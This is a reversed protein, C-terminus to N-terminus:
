LIVEIEVQNTIGDGLIEDLRKDDVGSLVSSCSQIFSNTQSGPRTESTPTPIGSSGLSSFSSVGLEDEFTVHSSFIGCSNFFKCVNFYCRNSSRRTAMISESPTSKPSSYNGVTMRGGKADFKYAIFLKTFNEMDASYQPGCNCLKLLRECIKFILKPIHKLARAEFGHVVYKQRKLAAEM